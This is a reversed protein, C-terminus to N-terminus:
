RKDHGEAWDILVQIILLLILYGLFVGLVTLGATRLLETIVDSMIM